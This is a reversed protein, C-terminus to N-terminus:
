PRLRRALEAKSSIGLKHYARSLHTEVTKVSLHLTSAIDKNRLGQAALEAVPREAATLDNGTAAIRGSLRALEADTVTVLRASGAEAFLDRAASLATRANRRQGARRHTIGLAQFSRGAELPVGLTQFSDASRALAAAAAAHDRRAAAILGFARDTAAHGWRSALAMAQDRLQRAFVGACTVDGLEAAAEAAALLAPTRSPERQGCAELQEVAKRLPPMAERYRGALLLDFGEIFRVDALIRHNSAPLLDDCEAVIGGVTPTDDIWVLTLALRCLADAKDQGFTIAPLPELMAASAQLRGTRCALMGRYYYSPPPDGTLDAAAQAEACWAWAQDHRDDFYAVIAANATVFYLPVADPRHNNIEREIEVAKIIQDFDFPEGAFRLRVACEATLDAWTEADLDAAELADAILQLAEEARGAKWLRIEQARRLGAAQRTPLGPLAALQGLQEASALHDDELAAVIFGARVFVDPPPHAALVERALRLADHPAGVAHECEALELVRHLPRSEGPTATLALSALSRATEWDGRRRSIAVATDLEAALGASALESRARHLAALVPDTTSAAARQRASRIAAPTASEIVARALLPHSFRVRDGAAELVGAQFAVDLEDLAVEEAAPAGRVAVDLLAPGARRPLEALRKGLASQLSVPLRGSEGAALALALERAFFPNGASMQVATQVGPGSANGAISRVLKRTEAPTLPAVTVTPGPLDLGGAAQGTATRATGVLRFAPAPLRYVAYALAALSSRDCWHLDDVALLVSGAALVQQLLNLTTVALLRDTIDLGDDAEARYLVVDVARRQPAPLAAVVSSPVHAFLDALVGLGLDAEVQLCSVPWTWDAHLGELVEALVTTKGIGAEGVITVVSHDALLETVRRVLIGRDDRLEPWGAWDGRPDSM